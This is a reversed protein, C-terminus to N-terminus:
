GMTLAMGYRAIAFLRARTALGRTIFVMPDALIM